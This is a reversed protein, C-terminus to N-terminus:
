NNRSKYYEDAISDYDYGLSELTNECEAESVLGHTYNWFVKLAIEKM